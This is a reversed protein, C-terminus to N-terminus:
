ILRFLFPVKVWFPTPEGKVLYPKFAYQEAAERAADELFPLRHPPIVYASLVTGTDDVLLMVEVTGEINLEVAQRPYIPREVHVVEVDSEALVPLSTTRIYDQIDDITHVPVPSDGTDAEPTPVPVPEAEDAVQYEFDIAVFDAPLVAVPAARRRFEEPFDTIIDLQPLIRLPGQQAVTLHRMATQEGEPFTLLVTRISALALPLTVAM